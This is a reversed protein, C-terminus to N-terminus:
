DILLINDNSIINRFNLIVPKTLKLLEEHLDYIQMLLKNMTGAQVLENDNIRTNLNLEVKLRDIEDEVFYLYNKFNLDGYGDYLYSFRGKITNKLQLINSYM